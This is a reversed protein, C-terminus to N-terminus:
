NLKVWFLIQSGRFDGDPGYVKRVPAIALVKKQMSFKQEDFVWQERTQINDIVSRTSLAKMESKGTSPDTVVFTDRASLIKNIEAPPLVVTDFIPHYATAKGNLVANILTNLIKGTDIKETIAEWDGPTFDWPKEIDSSARIEEAWVEGVSSKETASAAAAAADTAPEPRSSCAFLILGLFVYAVNKM